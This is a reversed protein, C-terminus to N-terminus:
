NGWTILWTGIEALIVIGIVPWGGFDFALYGATGCMISGILVRM